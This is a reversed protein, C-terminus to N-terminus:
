RVTREIPERLELGNMLQFRISNSSEVIIKEVTEAFLGSDFEELFDPSNEMVQILEQTRNLTKDNEAALLKEREKKARHLRSTLENSQSIFIDSDVLGQEKLFTLTQNQSSIEAIKRNLSM